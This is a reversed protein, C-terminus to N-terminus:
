KLSLDNKFQCLSMSSIKPQDNELDKSCIKEYFLLHISSNQFTDGGEQFIAEKINMGKRQTFNEQQVHRFNVDLCMSVHSFPEQEIFLAVTSLLTEFNHEKRFKNEDSTDKATAKSTNRPKPGHDWVVCYM